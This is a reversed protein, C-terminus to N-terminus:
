CCPNTLLKNLILESNIPIVVAIDHAEDLRKPFLSLGGAIKIDDNNIEYHDSIETFLNQSNQECFDHIVECPKGSPIISYIDSDPIRSLSRDLDIGTKLGLNSGVSLIEEDSKPIQVKNNISYAVKYWQKGRDNLAISENEFPATTAYMLKGNRFTDKPYLYPTNVSFALCFNANGTLVWVIDDKNNVDM